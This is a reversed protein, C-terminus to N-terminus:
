LGILEVAMGSTVLLSHFAEWRDARVVAAMPGLKAGLYQRSKPDAYLGDLTEPATTRLILVREISLSALEGGRDGELLRTIAPPLPADSTKSLFSGIQGVQVGQAQARAISDTDIRYSYGELSADLWTSLRALQFRDFRPVRRTASITGDPLIALKESQDPANPFRERGLLARGYANFRAAPEDEYTGLDLTGLWHLPGSLLYELLAGEVQDWYDRGSLSRGEDDSIYWADFLGNPRQFDAHDEQMTSIFDDFLWWKNGPQAALQALVFARVEHPRYQTMTGANVDIRLGPVRALDYLSDSHQWAHILLRVQEARTQDLWRRAQDTRVVAHGNDITIMQAIVAVDMLFRLRLPDHNLLFGSLGTVDHEGLHGHVLVPSVVRVYALLTTLDDVISTDAQRVDYVDEADITQAYAFQAQQMKQDSKLLKPDVGETIPRRLPLVEILDHPVTVVPEIGRETQQFARMILGRYYLAEAPGTPNRLPQVREMERASLRRIENFLKEYRQQPMTGGMSVLTQLAGRAREDLADFVRQARTPDTMVGALQEYAADDDEHWTVGWASAMVPLLPPDSDRLLKVLTAM